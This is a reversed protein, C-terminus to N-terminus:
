EALASAPRVLDVGGAELANRPMEEHGADAPEQVMAIGGQTKIARLGLTGDTGTGSLM